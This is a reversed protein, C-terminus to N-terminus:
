PTTSRTWRTAASPQAGPAWTTSLGARWGLSPGTAQRRPSGCQGTRLPLACKNGDVDWVYAGKVRDFVIPQGGVSNFARVPSNVGGPLLEKAEKFIQLRCAATNAVRAPPLVPRRRRQLSPVLRSPSSRHWAPQPGPDGQTLLTRPAPGARESSTTTFKPMSEVAAVAQPKCAHSGRRQPQAAQLPLPSTGFLCTHPAMTPQWSVLCALIECGAPRAAFAGGLVPLSQACGWALRIPAALRWPPTASRQPHARM